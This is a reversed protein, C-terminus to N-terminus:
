GKFNISWHSGDCFPKNKSAGCRCLAYHETSAGQGWTQGVLDVGGSIEYPGNKSVTVSAAHPQDRHEVDDISYSLAGSPCKKIVDIIQQAQAGNPDIWPEAGYKFVTALGDTCRGAHSCISRNDHLTIQKGRYTDRKNNNGDSLKSGSFGNKLHTGDCFPKNASNGCRCLAMVPKCTVAERNTNKLRTLNKILYPGDQTCEITPKNEM